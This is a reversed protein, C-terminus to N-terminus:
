FVVTRENIHEKSKGVDRNDALSTTVVGMAPFTEGGEFPNDRSIFGQRELLHEFFFHFGLCDGFVDAIGARRNTLICFASNPNPTKRLGEDNNQLAERISTLFYVSRHRRKYVTREVKFGEERVEAWFLGTLCVIRKMRNHVM